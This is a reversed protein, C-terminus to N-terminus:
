PLNESLSVRVRELRLQLMVAYVIIDQLEENAWRFLEDVPMLEFKQTDGQSYQEAGVGLVRASVEDALDQPTM